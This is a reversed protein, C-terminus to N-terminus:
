QDKDELYKSYVEDDRSYIVDESGFFRRFNQEGLITRGFRIVMKVYSYM